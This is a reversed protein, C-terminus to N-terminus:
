RFACISRRTGISPEADRLAGIATLQAAFIREDAVFRKLCEMVEDGTKLVVAYTRQGDSQHLLKHRM